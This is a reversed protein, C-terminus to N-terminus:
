RRARRVAVRGLGFIDGGRDAMQDLVGAFVAEIGPANIEGTMGGAAM